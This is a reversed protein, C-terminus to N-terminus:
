TLAKLDSQKQRGNSQEPPNKMLSVWEGSTETSTGMQLTSFYRSSHRSDARVCVSSSMSTMQMLSPEVSPERRM